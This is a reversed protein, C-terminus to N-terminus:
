AGPANGLADHQVCEGRAAGEIGSDSEHLYDVGHGSHARDGDGNGALQLRECPAATGEFQNDAKKDENTPVRRFLIQLGRM